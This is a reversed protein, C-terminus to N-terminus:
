AVAEQGMMIRDVLAMIDNPEAPTQENAGMGSPLQPRNGSPLAGGQRAMEQAQAQQQALAIEAVILAITEEPIKLRELVLKAQAPKDPLNRLMDMQEKETLQDEIVAREAISHELREDELNTYRPGEFGPYQFMTGIFAGMKDLRVLGADYNGRAEVIRDIADSWGARIGPATLNGKDRLQHLALEPMDRELELQMNLINQGAATIDINPVMPYPDLSDKSSYIFNLTDRETIDFSLDGGKAAKMYWIINVAKRVSDNLISWDDNIEDIKNVAHHFVAAGWQLGMDRHQVVELPVFGYENPWVKVPRQISDNFYAYPIGDKYTRFEDPTIDERYTYTRDTNGTEPNVEGRDYEIRAYTIEGASDREIAYIKAPHLVELSVRGMQRDDRVKVAVDGLMSGFRVYLSKDAQWNSNLYLQILHQRLAENETEIPIAGDALKRMDVSGGYIEGVYLEVLRAVPNNIPRIFKYLGLRSTQVTSFSASYPSNNYYGENFAYRFLRANRDGWSIKNAPSLWQQNYALIGANWATGVANSVRNWWNAM